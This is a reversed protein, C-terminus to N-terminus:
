YNVMIVDFRKKLETEFLFTKSATVQYSYNYLAIEISVTGNPVPDLDAASFTVPAHGAQLKRAQAASQRIRVILSDYNSAVGPGISITVGHNRHITDIGPAYTSDIKPFGRTVAASLPYFDKNGETRWVVSDIATFQTTGYRVTIQGQIKTLEISNEKVTGVDVNAFSAANAADTNEVHDLGKMLDSSPDSFIAYKGSEPGASVFMYGNIRRADLPLGNSINTNILAPQEPLSIKKCAFSVACLLIIFFILRSM